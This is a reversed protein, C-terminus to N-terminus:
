QRLKLSTPGTHGVYTQYEPHDFLHLTYLKESWTPRYPRALFYRDRAIKAQKHSANFEVIALLEGTFENYDQSKFGAVDDFYTYVRPLFSSYNSVRGAVELVGITSSYYDMDFSMAAIPPRDTTLFDEFTTRADGLVLEAKDLREKLRAVDMQYHGPAFYYPLDRVDAPAYLGEGSDFGFVSISVETIREIEAAHSEMALLGNGGAVGFEVASIHSVGLRKALQAGRFLCYAYMPKTMLSLEVRQEYSLKASPPRGAAGTTESFRKDAQRFCYGAGEFNRIKLFSVGLEYYWSPKNPNRSIAAQLASIAGIWQGSRMLTRGLRYHWAAHSPERDVAVQYAAAAGNWDSVKELSHGLRYHWLAHDPRAAIAQRYATVAAPWDGTREAEQGAEFHDDPGSRNPRAAATLDRAAARWQGSMGHKAARRVLRRSTLAV